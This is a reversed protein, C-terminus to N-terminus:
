LFRHHIDGANEPLESFTYEAHTGQMKTLINLDEDVVWVDSMAIDSLYKIYAGYGGAQGPGGSSNGSLYASLTESIKVARQELESKHLEITSSRFLLLFIGSIIVAFVILAAAFYTALKVVIKNKM